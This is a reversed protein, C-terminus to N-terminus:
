DGAERGRFSICDRCQGGALDIWGVAFARLHRRGSGVFVIQRTKDYFQCSRAANCIEIGGQHLLVATEGNEAVYVDFVTGRIGLSATPTKIEYSVKPAVGTIFRFAGQALNVSITGRSPSADYVFKDLVIKADPGM